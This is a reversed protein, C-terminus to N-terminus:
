GQAHSNVLGCAKYLPGLTEELVRKRSRSGVWPVVNRKTPM